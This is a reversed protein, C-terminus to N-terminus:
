NPCQTRDSRVSVRNTGLFGRDVSGHEAPGAQGARALFREVYKGLIDTEINVPDGPKRIGLTTVAATHPIVSVTFREDTCSNVTLSVGDVAVSGKQVMYRALTAPVAFTLVVANGETRRGSLTGLGDVHGSVLHGDLRDSLRLARELNVRDGVAAKGLSTFALTEPSVDAEFRGSTLDVATLCAGNVAISDGIGTGDLVFDAEIQIRRGTGSPRIRRITGLGEIIGTFM